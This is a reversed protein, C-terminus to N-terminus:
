FILLNIFKVFFFFFFIFVLEPKVDRHIIYHSHLYELGFIIEKIWRTVLDNNFNQSKEKKMQIHDKLSGGKFNSLDKFEYGLYIPLTFNEILEAM